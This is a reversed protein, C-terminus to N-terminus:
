PKAEGPNLTQSQRHLEDLRTTWQKETMTAPARNNLTVTIPASAPITGPSSEKKAHDAPAPAALLRQQRAEALKKLEAAAQAQSLHLQAGGESVFRDFAQLFDRRIFALPSEGRENVGVSCLYLYGGVQRLAYETAADFAPAEPHHRRYSGYKEVQRWVENWAQESLLQKNQVAPARERIESITPFFKLEQYCRTFAQHLTEPAIDALALVDSLFVDDPFEHPKRLREAIVRYWHKVIKATALEQETM